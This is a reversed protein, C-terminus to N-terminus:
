RQRVRARRSDGDHRLRAVFSVVALLFAVLAAAALYIGWSEGVFILVGSVLFAAARWAAGYVLPRRLRAHTATDAQPRLWLPLLHTAAGSVLPLLFAAFFLPLSARSDSLRLAHLVGAAVVLVWGALAATLSVAAGHWHIIARRQRTASVALPAIAVVWCAAGTLALPSWWVAGVVTLLTGAVAYKLDRALRARAGPDAYGGATPLLVQLTGIATLGVFGLLNLHLHLRKAVSWHELWLTGAVIALLGLLLCALAAQYWRLGPHRGGLARTAERAMWILLAAAAAMGIVAATALLFPAHALGVVALLGAALAVLPLIRVTRPAAPRRTLVPTFYAMAALILPFVGLAFVVHLLAAGPTAAGLAFVLAAAALVFV